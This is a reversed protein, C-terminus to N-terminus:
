IPAFDIPTVNNVKTPVDQTYLRHILKYMPDKSNIACTETNSNTFKELSQYNQM